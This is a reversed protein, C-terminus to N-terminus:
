FKWSWILSFSFGSLKKRVLSYPIYESFLYSYFPGVSRKYIQLWFNSRWEPITMWSKPGYIGSLSTHCVVLRQSLTDIIFLLHILSMHRKRYICINAFIVWLICLSRCEVGCVSVASIKDTCHQLIDISLTVTYKGCHISNQSRHPKLVIKRKHVQLTVDVLMRGTGRIIVSSTIHSRFANGHLILPCPLTTDWLHTHLHWNHLPSVLSSFPQHYLVRLCWVDWALNPLNTMM